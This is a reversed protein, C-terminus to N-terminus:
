GITQIPPSVFQYDQNKLETIIKSLAEVTKSRDAGAKTEQGDHLIIISGNKVQSVIRDAIKQPTIKTEWDNGWVGGFIKFGDNRLRNNLWFPALLWPSRFLKEKQDTLEEILKQTELTEKYILGLRTLVYRHNYTHNGVLHGEKAIRVITEPHRKINAGCVFFTAKIDEKNLIDLIQNTYPPNPGDDFTLAVKKLSGTHPDRAQKSTIFITSM